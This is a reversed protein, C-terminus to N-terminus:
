VKAYRAGKKMYCRAHIAESMHYCVCVYYWNVTMVSILHQGITSLDSLSIM